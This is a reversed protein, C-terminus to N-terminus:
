DALGAEGLLEDLRLDALFSSYNLVLARGLLWFMAGIKGAFHQEVIAKGMPVWNGEDNQLMAHEGFLVDRLFNIDENRLRSPLSALSGESVGESGGGVLRMLRVLVEQSKGLPLQKLLYTHEDNEVQEEKLM